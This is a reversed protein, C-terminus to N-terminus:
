PLIHRRVVRRSSLCYRSTYPTKGCASLKMQQFQMTTPFVGRRQDGRDRDGEGYLYHRVVQPQRRLLQFLKERHGSAVPLPKPAPLEFQRFHRIVEPYYFSHPM